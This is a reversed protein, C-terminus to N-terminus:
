SSDWDNIGYIVERNEVRKWLKMTVDRYIWPEILRTFSGNIMSDYNDQTIIEGLKKSVRLCIRRNADKYEAYAKDLDEIEGLKKPVRLCIQNYADMYDANVKDRDSISQDFLDNIEKEYDRENSRIKEKNNENDKDAM